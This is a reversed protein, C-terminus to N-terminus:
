KRRLRYPARLAPFGAALRVRDPAFVSHVRLRSIKFKNATATATRCYTRICKLTAHAASCLVDRRRIFHSPLIAGANQAISPSKSEINSAPSSPPSSQLSESTKRVSARVVANQLIRCDKTVFSSRSASLGFFNKRAILVRSRDTLFIQKTLGLLEILKM